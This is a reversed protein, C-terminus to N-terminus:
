ITQQTIAHTGTTEHKNILLFFIDLRLAHQWIKNNNHAAEDRGVIFISQLAEDPVLCLGFLHLRLQITHSKVTELHTEYQISSRLRLEPRTM